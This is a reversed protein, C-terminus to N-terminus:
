FGMNAGSACCSSVLMRESWAIGGIHKITKDLLSRATVGSLVGPRGARRGGGVRKDSHRRRDFKAMGCSAPPRSQRRRRRDATCRDSHWHNAAISQHVINFWATVEYPNINENNSKGCESGSKPLPTRKELAVIPSSIGELCLDVSTCCDVGSITHCIISSVKM